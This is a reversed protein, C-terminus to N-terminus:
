GDNQMIDYPFSGEPIVLRLKKSREHLVPFLLVRASHVRAARAPGLDGLTIKMDGVCWPYLQPNRSELIM